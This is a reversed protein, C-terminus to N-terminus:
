PTMPVLEHVRYNGSGTLKTRGTQYEDHRAIFKRMFVESHRLEEPIALWVNIPIQAIEQVGGCPSMGTCETLASRKAAMADRCTKTKGLFDRYAAAMPGRSGALRRGDLLEDLRRQFGGGISFTGSARGVNDDRVVPDAFEAALADRFLAEGAKM